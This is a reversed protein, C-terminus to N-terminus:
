VYIYHDARSVALRSVCAISGLSQFCRTAGTLQIFDMFFKIVFDEGKQRRKEFNYTAFTLEYIEDNNNNRCLSVVSM